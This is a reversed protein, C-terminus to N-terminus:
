FYFLKLSSSQGLEARTALQARGSLSTHWSMSSSPQAWSLLAPLSGYSSGLGSCYGTYQAPTPRLWGSGSGNDMKLLTYNNYSKIYCVIQFYVFTLFVHYIYIYVLIITFLMFNIMVNITTLLWYYRWYLIHM